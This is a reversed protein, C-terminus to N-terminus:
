VRTPQKKKTGDIHHLYGVLLESISLRFDIITAASSRDKHERLDIVTSPRSPRKGSATITPQGRLDIVTSPHANGSVITTSVCTSSRRHACGCRIVIVTSPRPIRHDDITTTDACCISSRMRMPAPRGLSKSAALVVTMVSSSVCQATPTCQACAELLTHAVVAMRESSRVRWVRHVRIPLPRLYPLAAVLRSEVM